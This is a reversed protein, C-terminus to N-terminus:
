ELQWAKALFKMDTKDGYRFLYGSEIVELLAKKEEDGILYSGPGAMKLM